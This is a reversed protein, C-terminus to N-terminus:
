LKVFLGFDINTSNHGCNPFQLNANSVHRLGPRVEFMVKGTKYTVGAAIIDSFAFGKALRETQTDSIMPGVSGMMFFSMKKDSRYRFV